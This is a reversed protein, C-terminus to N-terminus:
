ETPLELDERGRISAMTAGTERRFAEVDTTGGTVVQFIFMKDEEDLEDVYLLEDDRDDENDPVPHVKPEQACLIAVQDMFTSIQHVKEPDNILELLEGDDVGQAPKGQGKGVARQAITMLSNPMIGTKILAQLGIKKIRMVNGSPMEMPVGVLTKKWAAVSTTKNAPNRSGTKGSRSATM